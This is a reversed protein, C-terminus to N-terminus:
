WWGPEWDPVPTLTGYDDMVAAGSSAWAGSKNGVVYWGDLWGLRRAWTHQPGVVVNDYHGIVRTSTIHDCTFARSVTSTM